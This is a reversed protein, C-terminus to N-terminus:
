LGEVELDGGSWTRDQPWSETCGRSHKLDGAVRGHEDAKTCM